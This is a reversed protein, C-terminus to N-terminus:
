RGQAEGRVRSTNCGDTHVTLLAVEVGLADPPIGETAPSVGPILPRKGAVKHKGWLPVHMYATMKYIYKETALIVNIYLMICQHVFKYM